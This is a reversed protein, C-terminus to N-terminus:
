RLMRVKFDKPAVEVPFRVANEIRRTAKVHFPINSVTKSAVDIRNLKGGARGSPRTTRPGPWPRISGHIAWTEQM